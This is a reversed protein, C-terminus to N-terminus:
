GASSSRHKTQPANKQVACRKARHRIVTMRAFAYIALSVHGHWGHWSRTENHDLGLENQAFSNEVAWRHGEESVLNKM